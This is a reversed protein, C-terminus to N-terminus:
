DNIEGVSVGVALEIPPSTLAWLGLGARLPELAMCPGQERRGVRKSWTKLKARPLFRRFLRSQYRPVTIAEIRLSGPRPEPLHQHALNPAAVTAADITWVAEACDHRDRPPDVVHGAKLLDDIDRASLGTAPCYHSIEGSKGADVRASM